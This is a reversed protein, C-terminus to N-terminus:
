IKKFYSREMLIFEDKEYYKGTEDDFCSMVIGKCNVKEAWYYLAEKLKSGVGSRRHEPSVWFGVEFAIPVSGFVFDKKVVALFGVDDYLFITGEDRPLAFVDEIQMQVKAPDIFEKYPTAEAIKLALNLVTDLDELEAIKIGM